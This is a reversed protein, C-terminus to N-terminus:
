SWFQKSDPPHNRHHPSNTYYPLIKTPLFIPPLLNVCPEMKGSMEKGAANDSLRRASERVANVGALLLSVLLGIIALVVMLEIMTLASRVRPERMSTEWFNLTKSFMIEVPRTALVSNWFLCLSLFIEAGALCPPLSSAIGIGHEIAFTLALRVSSRHALM